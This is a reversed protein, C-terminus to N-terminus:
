ICVLHKAFSFSSCKDFTSPRKYRMPHFLNETKKGIPPLFFCVYSKCKWCKNPLLQLTYNDLIWLNWKKVCLIHKTSLFRVIFSLIWKNSFHCLSLTLSFQFLKKWPTRPFIALGRAFGLKGSVLPLLPHRPPPYSCYLTLFHTFIHTSNPQFSFM